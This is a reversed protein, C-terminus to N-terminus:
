HPDLEQLRAVLGDCAAEIMTLMSEFDEDTGYYPDPVVTDEAGLDFARLFQVKEKAADDPARSIVTQYNEEDMVLILDRENFWEIRFQRATHAGRYGRREWTSISRPNAGEGEHWGGTGSSDVVVHEIGAAALKHRLVVEAAPSRCINGMCVMMISIMPKEALLSLRTM